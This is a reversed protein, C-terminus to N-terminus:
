KQRWPQGRSEWDYEAHTVFYTLPFRDIGAASLADTIAFRIQSPGDGRLHAKPTKPPVIVWVRLLEEGTVWDVYPAHRMELVRPKDPLKLVKPDLIESLLAEDVM